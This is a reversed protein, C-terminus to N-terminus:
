QMDIVLLKKKGPSWHANISDNKLRQRMTRSFEDNKQSLRNMVRARAASIEPDKLGDNLEISDPDFDRMIWDGGQKDIGVIELDAALEPDSGVVARAGKLLRVSEAFKKDLTSKYWRKLVKGLTKGRFLQGEGGRLKRDFGLDDDGRFGQLEERFEDNYRPDFIKWEKPIPLNGVSPSKPVVPVPGAGPALARPKPGGAMAGPGQDPVMAATAPAEGAAVGGPPLAGVPVDGIVVWYGSPTIAGHAIVEGASNTATWMTGERWFATNPYKANTWMQGAHTNTPSWGSTGSKAPGTRVLGEEAPAGKAGIASLGVQLAGMVFDMYGSVVLADANAEQEPTNVGAGIGEQFRRGRSVNVPGRVMMMGGALAGFLLGAPPFIFMLIISMFTLAGIILDVIEELVDYAAKEVMVRLRVDANTSAILEDVIRCFDLYDASGSRIKNIQHKYGAQRAAINNKIISRIVSPPSDYLKTFVDKPLVRYGSPGLPELVPRIRGIANMAIETCPGVRAPDMVPPQPTEEASPADRCIGSRRYSVQTSAPKPRQPAPQSASSAKGGSAAAPQIAKHQDSWAQMRYTNANVEGASYGRFPLVPIQIGADRGMRFAESYAADFQLMEKPNPLADDGTFGRAELLKNDREYAEKSSHCYQCPGHIFGTMVDEQVLRQNPGRTNCWAEFNPQRNRENADQYLDLTREGEVQAQLGVDDFSSDIFQEWKELNVANSQFRQEAMILVRQEFEGITEKTGGKKGQKRIRKDGEAESEFIPKPQIREEQACHACKMQVTGTASPASVASSAPHTPWYDYGLYPYPSLMYGINIGCSNLVWWAFSNSNPGQTAHYTYGASNYSATSSKLCDIFAPCDDPQLEWQVGRSEWTSPKVWAGSKGGGTTASPPVPGAEIVGYDTSNKYYDIYLHRMGPVVGSWHDIRRGGLFVHCNGDTPPHDDPFITAIQWSGRIAHEDSKKLGKASSQRSDQQVVHTLEHALLHQGATHNTNYKGSNFYIDQGTTFAQANLQQSLQASSPDNHIRVGSFDAGFGSEMQKRTGDPLPSGSGRSSQIASEISPAAVGAGGGADPKRQLKEDQECHACKLQVMGASPVGSEGKQQVQESGPDSMRQVVKGAMEDAEKEYIDNPQGVTLKPQIVAPSAAGSGAFFSQDPKGSGFFGQGGGKKFFSGRSKAADVGKAPETQKMM